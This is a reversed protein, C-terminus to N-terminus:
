QGAAIPVPPSLQITADSEWHPPLDIAAVRVFERWLCERRFVGYSTKTFLRTVSIDDRSALVRIKGLDGGVACLPSPATFAPLM